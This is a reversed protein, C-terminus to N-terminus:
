SRKKLKKWLTTRSIGLKQAAASKNYNSTEIAKRIIEQEDIRKASPTKQKSVEQGAPDKERHTGRPMFEVLDLYLEDFLGPKFERGCLLYLRETFNRLQRVNGPWSYQQLKILYKQPIAFPASRNERALTDIFHEILLPIDELRERLAPVKLRLINLRFFLDERFAGNYVENEINNNSAAIVRVEVPVIRDAGIRMVEKEQLVRLLHRQVRQSTSAIEDLFITGTHSIEFLGPKGGKKSGTFSGEEYGFLESELLQESLAACNISVFPSKSRPSCYHISQALIEKGTGTEGMILITSHSSAFHRARSILEEMVKSKHILDNFTYKAVFGKSLSKRVESEVKIVNSIAKFTSVSGTTEGNLIIPIHSFVFKENNM